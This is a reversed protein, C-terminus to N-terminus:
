WNPTFYFPIQPHNANFDMLEARRDRRQDVISKTLPVLKNNEQTLPCFISGDPRVNVYCTQGNIDLFHYPPIDSVRLGTHDIENEKAM